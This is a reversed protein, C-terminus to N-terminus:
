DNCDTLELINKIYLELMARTDHKSFENPDCRLCIKLVRRYTFASITASTGPRMPPVGSIDELILNGFRLRGGEETPFKAHFQKTPDGTNSLIATAFGRKLDMALKLFRPYYRYSSAMLHMFKTKHRDHKLKLLEVGLKSRFTERDKLDPWKRKIFSHAVVNCASIDEDGQERLNMPMMICAYRKHSFRQHMQDWMLLTEFLKEILLDNVVQGKAKAALRLEKYQKKEFVYSEIAPFSARFGAPKRKESVLIKNFSSLHKWAEAWAAQYKGNPLRFDNLNYSSKGRGKLRQIPLEIDREVEGDCLKTYEFLLDGLYHYSGIGDCAAHHFQTTVVSENESSRVFIRLGIENRLDLFERDPFDIPEDSAGWHIYPLSNKAEVWSEKGGKGPGINAQLLPHHRLSLPVAKEFAERNIAGTFRLQVVFTMPYAPRDDVLMYNEFPTLHLPFVRAKKKQPETTATKLIM